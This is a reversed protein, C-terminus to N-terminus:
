REKEWEGEEEEVKSEEPIIFKYMLYMESFSL